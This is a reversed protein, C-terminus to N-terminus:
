ATRPKGNTSRNWSPRRRSFRTVSGTTASPRGHFYKEGAFNQGILASGIVKNDKELLKELESLSPPHSWYGSMVTTALLLVIGAASVSAGITVGRAAGRATEAAESVTASTPQIVTPRITIAGRTLRSRPSRRALSSAPSGANPM